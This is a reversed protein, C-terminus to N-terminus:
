LIINCYFVEEIVGKTQQELMILFLLHDKDFESKHPTTQSTSINHGLPQINLVLHDKTGATRGDVGCGTSSVSM